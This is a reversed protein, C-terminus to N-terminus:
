IPPAIHVMAVFTVSGDSASMELLVAMIATLTKSVMHTLLTKSFTTEM